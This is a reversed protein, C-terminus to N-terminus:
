SSRNDICFCLLSRKACWLILIELTTETVYRSNRNTVTTKDTCEEPQKRKTDRMMVLDVQGLVM